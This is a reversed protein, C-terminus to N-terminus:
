GVGGALRSCPARLARMAELLRGANDRDNYLQGSVRLGGVGATYRHPIVV